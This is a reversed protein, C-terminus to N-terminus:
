DGLSLLALWFVDFSVRADRAAADADLALGDVFAVSAGALLAAPVRPILALSAFLHSVSRTMTARRETAARESAARIDAHRQLGLEVLVHLEGRTLEDETLAWLANVAQGAAAGQIARRERAVIRGALRAVIDALLHGRNRFHYHLLGKSVGAQKAIVSMSSGDVGQQRLCLIAADLIHERAGGSDRVM